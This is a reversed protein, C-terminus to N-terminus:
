VALLLKVKDPFVAVTPDPCHVTTEPVALIVAFVEGVEPTVPTGTPVLAVNRQVIVLPAHLLVSSTTNVLLAAVNVVAEAPVSISWHLVEVKVKAPFVGPAPLVPVHVFILPAPTTLEGFEGVATTLPTVGPCVAIMRQVILLPTVVLM